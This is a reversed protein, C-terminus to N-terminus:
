TTDFDHGMRPLFFHLLYMVAGEDAVFPLNGVELDNNVILIDSASSNSTVPGGNGQGEGKFLTFGGGFTHSGLVLIVTWPIIKSLQKPKLACNAVIKVMEFCNQSLQPFNDVPLEGVSANRLRIAEDYVKPQTQRFVTACSRIVPEMRAVFEKYANIREPRGAISDTEWLPFRSTLGTYKFSANLPQQNYEVKQRHLTAFALFKEIQFASYRELMDVNPHGLDCLPQSLGNVYNYYQGSAASSDRSLDFETGKLEDEFAAYSAFDVTFPIRPAWVIDNFSTDFDHDAIADQVLAALPIFNNPTLPQDPHVFTFNDLETATAEMGVVRPAFSSEQAVAPALFYDNAVTAGAYVFAGDQAPIYNGHFQMQMEQRAIKEATDEEMTYGHLYEQMGIESNEMIDEIDNDKLHTDIAENPTIQREM